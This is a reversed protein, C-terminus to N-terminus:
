ELTERAVLMAINMKISLTYLIEDKITGPDGTHLVGARDDPM